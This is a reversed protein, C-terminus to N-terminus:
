SVCTGGMLVTRSVKLVIRVWKFCIKFSQFENLFRTLMNLVEAERRFLTKFCEVGYLVNTVLKFRMKLSKCWEFSNDCIHFFINFCKFPKIFSM